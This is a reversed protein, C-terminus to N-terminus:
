SRERIAKYKAAAYAFGGTINLFTGFLYRPNMDVGGFTFMGIATQAMAKVQGSVLTSTPSTLETCLFLAYNLLLGMFLSGVFVVLFTPSTWLPFNLAPYIEGVGLAIIGVCPLSLISHYYLIGFSNMGTELGSRKVFVLYLAQFACSLFGLIWAYNSSSADANAALVTGCSMIILAAFSQRSAMKRLLVTELVITCLPALRKIITYSPVSLERLAVLAVAANLSYFVSVPAVLRARSLQFEAFDIVRCSRLLRLLLATFIMQCFLLFNTTRFNYTYSLAKNTFVMCSSVVIYFSCVSISVIVTRRVQEPSLQAQSKDEKDDKDDSEQLLRVHQGESANTDPPKETKTTLHDNIM